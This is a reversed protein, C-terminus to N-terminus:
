SAATAEPTASAAAIADQLMQAGAPTWAFNFVTVQGNEVTVDWVGGLSPIGMQRFLDLSIDGTWHVTNGEVYRGVAEIHFKGDALEQQWARIADPTNYVDGTAITVVADPAFLAMAGDVDNAGEATILADAISGATLETLAEPTFSFDFTKVKGDEIDLSWNGGMSAIGLTRFADLSIEGTWTVMSGNVQMNVPELRFHGDALSQQWGRVGDPTNYVSGDALTVVADDAFLAVAADVNNSDEAAILAHAVDEPSTQALTIAAGGLLLTALLCIFVSSRLFGKFSM